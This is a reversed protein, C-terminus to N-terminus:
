NTTATFVVTGSYTGGPQNIPVGTTAGAVTDDTISYYCRITRLAYLPDSSYLLKNVAIWSGAPGLSAGSPMQAGGNDTSVYVPVVACAGAPLSSSGNSLATGTQTLTYPAGPSTVRVFACIAGTGTTSTPSSRLTGTGIDILKGFDMSNVVDGWENKRLTVTIGITGQVDAGMLISGSTSSAGFCLPSAAGMTVMWITLVGILRKM